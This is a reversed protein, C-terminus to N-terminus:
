GRVRRTIPPLTPHAPVQASEHCITNAAYEVPPVFGMVWNVQTADPPSPSIQVHPTGVADERTIHSTALRAPYRRAVISGRTAPSPIVVRHRLIGPSRPVLGQGARHGPFTVLSRCPSWECITCTRARHVSESRASIRDRSQSRIRYLRPNWRDSTRPMGAGFIVYADRDLARFAAASAPNITVPIVRCGSPFTCRLQGSPAPSPTACPRSATRSGPAGM